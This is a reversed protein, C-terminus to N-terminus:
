AEFRFGGSTYGGAYRLKSYPGGGRIRPPLLYGSSKEPCPELSLAVLSDSLFDADTALRFPMLNGGQRIYVYTLEIGVRREM